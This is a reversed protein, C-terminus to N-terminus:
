TQELKKFDDSFVISILELVAFIILMGLGSIHVRNFLTPIIGLAIITAVITQFFFSMVLVKLTFPISLITSVLMFLLDVVVGITYMCIVVSGFYFFNKFAGDLLDIRIIGTKDLFTFLGFFGLTPISLVIITAIVVLLAVLAIGLLNGVSGNKFMNPLKM